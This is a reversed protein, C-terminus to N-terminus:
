PVPFPLTRKECHAGSVDMMRGRHTMKMTMQVHSNTRMAIYGLGVTNQGNLKNTIMQENNALRV